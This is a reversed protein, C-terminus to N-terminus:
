QLESIFKTVLNSVNRIPDDSFSQIEKIVQQKFTNSKTQKGLEYLIQLATQRKRFSDVSRLSSVSEPISESSRLYYTALQQIAATRVPFAEDETLKMCINQFDVSLQANSVLSSFERIVQVVGLRVRWKDDKTLDILINSIRSAVLNAMDIKKTKALSELFHLRIKPIQNTMLEDSFAQLQQAPVSNTSLAIICDIVAFKIALQNLNIFSSITNLVETANDLQVSPTNTLLHTLTKLACLKVQWVRDSLLQVVFRSAKVHDTTDTLYTALSARVSWDPDKLLVNAITEFYFSFKSLIAPLYARIRAQSDKVLINSLNQADTTTLKPLLSAVSFRVLFSEDSILSQCEKLRFSDTSSIPLLKTIFVRVIDYKSVRLRSILQDIMADGRYEQLSRVIHEQVGDDEGAVLVEILPSLSSLSGSAKIIDPLSIIVARVIKHNNPPLWTTLFPIFQDRIISPQFPKLVEPINQAFRLQANEDTDLASSILSAVNSSM